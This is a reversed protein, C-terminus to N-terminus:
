SKPSVHKNRWLVFLVIVVAIVGAILFAYLIAFFIKEVVQPHQYSYYGCAFGVMYAITFVTENRMKNLM